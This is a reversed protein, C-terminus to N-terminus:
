HHYPPLGMSSVDVVIVVSDIQSESGILDVQLTNQGVQFWEVIVVPTGQGYIINGGDASWIYSVYDQPMLTYGAQTGGNVSQPGIIVAMKKIKIICIKANFGSVGFSKM